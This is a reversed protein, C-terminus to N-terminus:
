YALSSYENIQPEEYSLVVPQDPRGRVFGWVFNWVDYRLSDMFGVGILGRCEHFALFSSGLLRAYLIRVGPSAFLDSTLWAQEV